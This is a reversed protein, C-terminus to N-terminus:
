EQGGHYDGTERYATGYMSIMGNIREIRWPVCITWPQDVDQVGLMRDLFVPTHNEALLDFAREPMSVTKGLSERYSIMRSIPEKQQARVSPKARSLGDVVM